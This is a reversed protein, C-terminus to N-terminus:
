AGRREKISERSARIIQGAYKEMRERVEELEDPTGAWRRAALTEYLEVCRGLEMWNFGKGDHGKWEGDQREEPTCRWYIKRLVHLATRNKTAIRRKLRRVAMEDVKKAM